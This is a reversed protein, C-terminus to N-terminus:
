PQPWLDQARERLWASTDGHLADWRALLHAASSGEPLSLDRRLPDLYRAEHPDALPVEGQALRDLGQASLDLLAQALERIEHGDRGPIPGQLSWRAANQFLRKRQDLTFDQVLAKAAARAQADYLLGKWLAPLALIHDRPGVDAGRVEIYRKMRVEPFLTSLHLEYDGLTAQHGQAGDELFRRFPLGSLDVYRGERRIFYMPVDLTWEVYDAFGFSERELMFLPFGCRAPDTDTWIHNRVSMFGAPGGKWLPSRSFMASVVPSVWLAAHLLDAADQESTYDFNAQVTCTMKMMWHGLNGVKPMYAKMIDYRSKPMWPASDVAHLPNAGVTVVLLGLEETVRQVEALHADLEAETQAMRALPAGSLEFQGGPEFTLAEVGGWPSPREAAVPNPGDYALTYGGLEALREMLRRVGRPGDYPAPSLDERLFLFKEHETGVKRQAPDKIGQRFHDALQDLSDIPTDSQPLDRSM